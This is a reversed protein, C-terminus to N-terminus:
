GAALFLVRNLEDLNVISQFKTDSTEFEGDDTEDSESSSGGHYTANDFAKIKLRSLQEFPLLCLVLQILCSANSEDTLTSLSGKDSESLSKGREEAFGKRKTKKPGPKKNIKDM